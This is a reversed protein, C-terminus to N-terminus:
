LWLCGGLWIHNSRQQATFRFHHLILHLNTNNVLLLNCVPKRNTVFNIVKFSKQIAYHCSVRAM